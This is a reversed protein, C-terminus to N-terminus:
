PDEFELARPTDKSLKMDKPIAPYILVRRPGAAVPRPHCSAHTGDYGRAPTHEGGGLSPGHKNYEDKM